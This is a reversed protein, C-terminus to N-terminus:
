DGLHDMLLLRVAGATAGKVFTVRVPSYIGLINTTDSLQLPKSDEVVANWTVGSDGSVHIDITEGAALGVAMFTAPVARVLVNHDGASVAAATNFIERSM